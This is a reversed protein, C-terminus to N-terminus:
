PVCFQSKGSKLRDFTLNCPPGLLYICFNLTKPKEYIFSGALILTNIIGYMVSFAQRFDVSFLELLQQFSVLRFDLACVLSYLLKPLRQFVILPLKNLSM